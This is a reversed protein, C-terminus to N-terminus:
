ITAKKGTPRSPCSLPDTLRCPRPTNVFSDTSVSRVNVPSNTSRKTKWTLLALAVTFALCTSVVWCNSLVIRAVMTLQVSVNTTLWAIRVPLAMKVRNTVLANTSKWSATTVKTAPCVNVPIIISVTLVHVSNVLHSAEQHLQRQWLANTSTSRVILEKSAPCVVVCIDVLSTTVSRSRVSFRVLKTCPGIPDNWVNPETAVPNRFQNVNTSIRNATKAKTVWTVNAYIIKSSISAIQATSALHASVITSTSKVTFVKSDLITVIANTRTSEM